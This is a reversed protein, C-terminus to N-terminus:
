CVRCIMFFISNTDRFITFYVRKKGELESLSLLEQNPKLLSTEKRRLLEEPTLSLKIPLETSMSTNKLTPLLLLEPPRETLKLRSEETRSLKLLSLMELKNRLLTRQSSELVKIVFFYSIFLRHVYGKAM